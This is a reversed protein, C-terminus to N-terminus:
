SQDGEYVVHANVIVVPTDIDIEILECSVLDIVEIEEGSDSHRANKPRLYLIAGAGVSTLRFLQGGEVDDAAYPKRKADVVKM